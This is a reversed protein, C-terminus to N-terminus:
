FRSLDLRNTQIIRRLGSVLTIHNLIRKTNITSNDTILILVTQQHQSYLSEDLWVSRYLLRRMALRFPTIRYQVANWIGCEIVWGTLWWFIYIQRNPGSPLDTLDFSVTRYPLILNPLPTKQTIWSPALTDPSSDDRARKWLLDTDSNKYHKISNVFRLSSRTTYQILVFFLSLPAGDFQLYCFTSDIFPRTLRLVNWSSFVRVKTVWVWSLLGM